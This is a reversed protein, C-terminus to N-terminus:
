MGFKLLLTWSLAARLRREEELEKRSTGLEARVRGLEKELQANAQKEITLLKRPVLEEDDDDSSSPM